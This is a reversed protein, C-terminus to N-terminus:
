EKPLNDLQQQIESLENQLRIREEQATIEARNIRFAETIEQPTYDVYLQRIIVLCSEIRTPDLETTQSKM